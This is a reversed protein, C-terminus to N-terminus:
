NDFDLISVYCDTIDYDRKVSLRFSSSEEPALGESGVAYTSDTDVVNGSSDKFSGKVTVFYYTKKGTNKVKGTCVNYSSNNDWSLDTIDLVSYGSESAYSSLSDNDSSMYGGKEYENGDEDKINGNSLVTYTGVIIEFTGDKPNWEEISYEVDFSSGLSVWRKTLTDNAINIQYKANYGSGYNTWTGQLAEEMERESSYTTRQSIQIAHGIPFALVICVAIAIGILINRKKKQKELRTRETKRIQEEKEESIRYEEVLKKLNEDSCVKITDDKNKNCLSCINKDHRNFRGCSCIWGQEFDKPRFRANTDYLKRLAQLQETNDIEELEFTISNDGEYTVITGDSFCVQCEILDLKKMDSNPLKAKLDAAIENKRIIIDQIILFFKNKGNVPVIDNFSNYGCVDFKIATIDGYGLNAFSILAIADGKSVSIEYHLDEIHGNIDITKQITNM